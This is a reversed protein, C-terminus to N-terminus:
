GLLALLMQPDAPKLFHHDFGAALAAQREAETGFGTLAVLLRPRSGNTSLRRCVEYGDLGPLTISLFVADPRFTHATAVADLGTFAVTSDHGHLRLLLALSEAADINGDAILVRRGV